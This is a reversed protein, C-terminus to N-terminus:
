CFEHLSREEFDNQGDTAHFTSENQPSKAVRRLLHLHINGYCLRSTNVATLGKGSHLKDILKWFVMVKLGTLIQIDAVDIM